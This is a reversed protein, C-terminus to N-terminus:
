TEAGGVNFAIGLAGGDVCEVEYAVANAADSRWLEPFRVCSRPVKLTNNSGNHRPTKENNHHTQVPKQAPPLIFPPILTSM